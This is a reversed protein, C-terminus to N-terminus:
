GTPSSAGVLREAYHLDAATTIKINLPDGLVIRPVAGAWEVLAADDTAACGIETARRHADRLLSLRFAQPTQAMWLGRRGVTARVVGDSARKLTDQVPLATLAAGDARAAAVCAEVLKAAVFPRVADHVVVIDCESGLVNLCRRVSQQREAGGAVADLPVRWAGAAAVLQHFDGLHSEPVAVVLRGVIEATALRRLTHLIIPEGALSVFAKPQNAGLREGRGAAVVVAAVESVRNM